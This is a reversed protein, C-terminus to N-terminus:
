GILSRLLFAATDEPETIMLDHGTKIEDVPWGLKRAREAHALFGANERGAGTCLVYSGPVPYPRRSDLDLVEQFSALPHPTLRELMWEIDQTDTVGMLKGDTVPPVPIKWGDGSANASVVAPHSNNGDAIHPEGGPPLIADLYAVHALREIAHRAVGSIVLGGYSHGALVVDHLDEYLLLAAIDQIHTTLNVERTLLHAREGVGTLTPTYVRHGQAELLPTVKRWCWGGHWAGPVLVFTPM